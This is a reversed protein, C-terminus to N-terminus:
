YNTSFPYFLIIPFVVQHAHQISGLSAPVSSYMSSKGSLHNPIKGHEKSESEERTRKRTKDMPRAVEVQKWFYGWKSMRFLQFSWRRKMPSNCPKLIQFSLYAEIVSLKYTPGGNPGQVTKEHM